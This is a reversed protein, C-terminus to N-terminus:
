FNIPYLSSLTGLAASSSFDPHQPARYLRRRVRDYCYLMVMGVNEDDLSWLRLQAYSVGHAERREAFGAVRGRVIAVVQQEGPNWPRGGVTIRAYIVMDSPEDHSFDSETWRNIVVIHCTDRLAGSGSVAVMDVEGARLATVTDNVIRVCTDIGTAPYWFVPLSDIDHPTFNVRLPLQDGVMLCVTDQEVKMSESGAPETEDFTYFDGCSAMMLLLGLSM